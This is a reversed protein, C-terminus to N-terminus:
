ETRARFTAILDDIDKRLRVARAEISRLRQLEEHTLRESLPVPRYGFKTSCAQLKEIRREAEAVAEPSGSAAARVRLWVDHSRDQKSDDCAACALVMNGLVTEGGNKVAVLHDWRKVHSSGCFVCETTGFFSIVQEMQERGFRRRGLCEQLSRLVDSFAFSPTLRMPARPLGM